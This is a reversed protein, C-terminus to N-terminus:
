SYDIFEKGCDLCLYKEKFPNDTSILEHNLGGCFPCFRLFTYDDDM